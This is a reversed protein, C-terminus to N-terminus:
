NGARDLSCCCAYEECVTLVNEIETKGTVRYGCPDYDHSFIIREIDMSRILSISKFYKEKDSIGSRYKDIGRQQLCDFSILTKTKTDFIALSDESHGRLSLVEFRNLLVTPAIILKADPFARRLSPLGGAHDSHSHSCFIYDPAAGLNHIAPLIYKEVDHDTAATDCLVWKNEENLAFVTTYIAEFPVCLRYIGNDEKQFRM